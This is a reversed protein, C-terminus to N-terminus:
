LEPKGMVSYINHLSIFLALPIIVLPEQNRDSSVFMSGNRSVFM